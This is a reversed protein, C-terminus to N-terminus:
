RWYRITIRDGKFKMRYQKVRKQAARKSKLPSSSSALGNKHYVIVIYKM